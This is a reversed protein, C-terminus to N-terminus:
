AVNEFMPGHTALFGLSKPAEGFKQVSFKGAGFKEVGIQYADDSDNYIAVLEGEHLLATRGMHKPDITNQLEQFKEWNVNLPDDSSM